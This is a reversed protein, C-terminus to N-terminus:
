KSMLYKNWYKIDRKKYLKRWENIDRLGIFQSADKGSLFYLFIVACWDKNKDNLLPILSNILLASDCVGAIKIVPSTIKIKIQPLKITENQINAGGTKMIQFKVSDNSLQNNIAKFDCQANAFSPYSMLLFFLISKFM